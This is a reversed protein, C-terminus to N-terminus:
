VLAVISNAVRKVADEFLNGPYDLYSPTEDDCFVITKQPLLVTPDPTSQSTATPVLFPNDSCGLQLVAGLLSACVALKHAVKRPRTYKMIKTTRHSRPNRCM